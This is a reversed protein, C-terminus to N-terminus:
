DVLAAVVRNAMEVCAKSETMPINGVMVFVWILTTAQGATELSAEGVVEYNVADWVKLDIRTVGTNSGAGAIFYFGDGDRTANRGDVELVHRPRPGPDRPEVGKDDRAEQLRDLYAQASIREPVEWGLAQILAEPAVTPVPAEANGLTRELCDRLDADVQDSPDSSFVAVVEGPGLAELDRLDDRVTDEDLDAPTPIFACGCLAPVTAAIVLRPISILPM